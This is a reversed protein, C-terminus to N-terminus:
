GIFVAQLLIIFTFFAVRNIYSVLYVVWFGCYYGEIEIVAYDDGVLGCGNFILCTIYFQDLLMAPLFWLIIKLVGM